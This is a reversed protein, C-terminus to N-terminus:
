EPTVCLGRLKIAIQQVLEMDRKAQELAARRASQDDVIWRSFAIASEVNLGLDAIRRKLDQLRGGSKVFSEIESVWPEIGDYGAAAVVEIERELPLKQGRITGTSLCYSFPPQDGQRGVATETGALVSM